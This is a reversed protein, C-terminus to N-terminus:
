YCISIKEAIEKILEVANHVHKETTKSSCIAFRLFYTGHTKSAVLHIRGDTNLATLLAENLENSGLGLHPPVFLEFSSIYGNTENLLLEAFLKALEVQFDGAWLLKYIGITLPLQRINM